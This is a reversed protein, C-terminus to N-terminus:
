SYIIELIDEATRRITQPDVREWGPGCAGDALDSTFFRKELTFPGSWKLPEVPNAKHSALAVKANEQIIGRSEEKSLSIACSRSLGKKVEAVTIGPILEKAERCAAHDGTLYIMPIGLAGFFLATQAIEGIPIDNLKFYEVARSSQTHNMNGDVTGAMAHQGVIACVDYDRCLEVRVEY